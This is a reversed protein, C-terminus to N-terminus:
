GHTKITLQFGPEGFRGMAWTFVQEFEKIFRAESGGFVITNVSPIRKDRVLYSYNIEIRKDTM